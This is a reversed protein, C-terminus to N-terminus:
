IAVITGRLPSEITKHKELYKELAHIADIANKMVQDEAISKDILVLQHQYDIIKKDEITLDLRGLLSGHCGSQFIITDNVIAPEYLRNHTHASLLVDIGDVEEALKLEQPFGLHSLVVVLDVDQEKLNKIIIIKKKALIKLIPLSVCIAGARIYTSHDGEFFHEWHEELYGHTDNLQIITM